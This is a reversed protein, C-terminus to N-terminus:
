NWARPCSVNQRDIVLDVEHGAAVESVSTYLMAWTIPNMPASCCIQKTSTQSGGIEPLLSYDRTDVLDDTTIQPLKAVKRALNLTPSMDIKGALDEKGTVVCLRVEEVHM